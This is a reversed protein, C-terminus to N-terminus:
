FALIFLFLIKFLKGVPWGNEFFCKKNISRAGVNYFKKM